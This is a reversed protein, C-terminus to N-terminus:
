RFMAILAIGPVSKGSSCAKNCLEKRKFNYRYIGGGGGGGEKGRKDIHRISHKESKSNCILFSSPL